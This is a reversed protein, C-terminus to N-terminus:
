ACHKLQNAGLIVLKKFYHRYIYAWPMVLYVLVVCGIAFVDPLMKQDFTGSLYLPLPVSFLWITELGIGV